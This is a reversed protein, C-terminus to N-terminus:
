NLRPIYFMDFQATKNTSHQSSTISLVLFSGYLIGSFKHWQRTKGCGQLGYNALRGRNCKYM